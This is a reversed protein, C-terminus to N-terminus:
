NELNVTPEGKSIINKERHQSLEESSEKQERAIHVSDRIAHNDKIPTLGCFIQQIVENEEERLDEFYILHISAEITM